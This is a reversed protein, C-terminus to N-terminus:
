RLRYYFRDEWKLVPFKISKIHTFKNKLLFKHIRRPSYGQYLNDFHFEIMILKINKLNNKLGKLIEEEYGEVDIKIFDPKNRYNIFSDLKILKTIKKKHKQDGYLFKKVKFTKSKTNKIDLSTTLSSNEDINLDIYKDANGVAVNLIKINKLNKFKKKSNKCLKSNPEFAFIKSNPFIKKFLISYEGENSGVDYINKIKSNFNILFKKIRKRHILIDIYIITKQVLFSLIKKM